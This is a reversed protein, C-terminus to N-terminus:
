NRLCIGVACLGARGGQSGPYGLQVGITVFIEPVTRDQTRNRLQLFEREKRELTCARLGVVLM